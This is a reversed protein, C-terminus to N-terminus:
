ADITESRDLRLVRTLTGNTELTLTNGKAATVLLYPHFGRKEPTNHGLKWPQVEVGDVNCRLGTSPAKARVLLVAQGAATAWTLRVAGKIGTKDNLEEPWEAPAYLLRKAVAALPTGGGVVRAGEVLEAGAPLRLPGEGKALPEPQSAPLIDALTVGLPARPRSPVTRPRKAPRGPWFWSAPAGATRKKACDRWPDHAVLARTDDGCLAFAWQPPWSHEMLGVPSFGLFAGAECRLSEAEFQTRTCTERSGNPRIATIVEGQEHLVILPSFDWAKKEADWHPTDRLATWTGGTLAHGYASLVEGDRLRQPDDSQLDDGSVVVKGDPSIFREGNIVLSEYPWDDFTQWELPGTIPTRTQTGVPQLDAGWESLTRLQYDVRWLLVPEGRGPERKGYLLRERTRYQPGDSPQAWATLLEYGVFAEGPRGQNDLRVQASYVTGHRQETSLVESGQSGDWRLTTLTIDRRQEGGQRPTIDTLWLRIGVSEFAYPTLRKEPARALAPGLPPVVMGGETYGYTSVIEGRQQTRVERAHHDIVQFPPFIIRGNDLVMGGGTLTGAEGLFAGRENSRPLHVNGAFQAPRQPTDYSPPLPIFPEDVPGARRRPPMSPRGTAPDGGALRAVQYPAAPSRRNRQQREQEDREKCCCCCDEGLLGLLLRM